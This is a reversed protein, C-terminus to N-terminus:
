RPEQGPVDNESNPGDLNPLVLTSIRTTSKRVNDYLRPQKLNHLPVPLQPEVLIQNQLQHRLFPQKSLGPAQRPHLQRHTLAAQQPPVVRAQALHLSQLHRLPQLPQLLLLMLLRM